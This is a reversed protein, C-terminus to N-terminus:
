EIFRFTYLIWDLKKWVDNVNVQQISGEPYNEFNSTQMTQRLETCTKNEFIRFVRSQYFNGAAVGSESTSFFLAGNISITNTFLPDDKQRNLSVCEALSTAPQNSVTFAANAFNTGPFEEKGMQAQTLQNNLSGYTAERLNFGEPYNFAFKFTPNTYVRGSDTPSQGSDTGTQDIPQQNKNCSAGILTIAFALLIIKKM